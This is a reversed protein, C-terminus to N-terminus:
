HAESSVIKINDDDFVVLEDTIGYGTDADHIIVTDYGEIDAQNLESQRGVNTGIDEGQLELQNGVRVDVTLVYASGRNNKLVSAYYDAHKKDLFFFFGQEAGIQGSTNDDQYMFKDFKNPTAHYARITKDGKKFDPKKQDKHAAYAKRAEEQLEQANDMIFQWVKDGYDRDAVVTKYPVFQQLGNKYVRNGNEDRELRVINIEDGKNIRNIVKDTNLDNLYVYEEVFDEERWKRANNILSSLRGKDFEQSERMAIAAHMRTAKEYSLDGAGPLAKGIEGKKHGHV